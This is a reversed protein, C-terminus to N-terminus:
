GASCDSTLEPLITRRTYGPDIIIHVADPANVAFRRRALRLLDLYNNARETKRKEFVVGIPDRTKRVENWRYVTITRM